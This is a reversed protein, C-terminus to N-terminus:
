EADLLADYGYGVTEVPRDYRQAHAVNLALAARATDMLMRQVCEPLFPLWYSNPLEDFSLALYGELYRLDLYTRTTDEVLFPLSCLDDYLADKACEQADTDRRNNAARRITAILERPYWSQDFTAAARQLGDALCPVMVSRLHDAWAAGISGPEDGPEDDPNVVWDSWRSESDRYRFRRAFALARDELFFDIYTLNKEAIEQPPSENCERDVYRWKWTTDSSPHDVSTFRDIMAEIDAEAHAEYHQILAPAAAVLAACVENNHEKCMPYNTDNAPRECDAVACVPAIKTDIM